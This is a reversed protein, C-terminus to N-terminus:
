PRYYTDPGVPTGPGNYDFHGGDHSNPYNFHPGRNQPDSEGYYHGSYDHRMEVINGEEDLFRLIERDKPKM